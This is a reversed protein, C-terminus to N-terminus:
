KMLFLALLPVSQNSCSDNNRIHDIAVTTYLLVNKDNYKAIKFGIVASEQKSDEPIKLFWDCREIVTNIINLFKKLNILANWSSLKHIKFVM